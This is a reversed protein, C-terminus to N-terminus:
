NKKLIFIYEHKFIYFGGLLARYRWLDKQSRKGLTEEFNKVIISKLSFGLNLIENMALFGLPVWDGASYKDGIVLILYRGKDLISAANAAVGKLMALFSEISNANSLDRLDDSFKIIDFYPPHMIVMQVSKIGINKLVKKYNINVSDDNFIKWNISYKNPESSIFKNAKEIINKQLEVGISNRGLRQAEILTTGCGAFTDLVWDGKKTYRRIMQNPIQPIFNGWYGASHTGSNDRKDVVWLSDTLIDDYEKWRNLNIDNIQNTKITTIAKELREVYYIARELTLSNQIQDLELCLYEINIDLSESEESSDTSDLYFYQNNNLDSLIIKIKEIKNKLDFLSPLQKVESLLTLFESKNLKLKLNMSKLLHTKLKAWLLFNGPFYGPFKLIKNLIIRHQKPTLNAEV